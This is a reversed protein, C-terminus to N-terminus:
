EDPAIRVVRRPSAAARVPVDHAQVPVTDVLEEDYVVAVTLTDPGVRRLARDYAGGGRGLRNGAQDVALAPVIVLNAAAIADVGLHPGNPERLRRPTAMLSGAGAYEGWDLDGDDRLVPLLVRVGGREALADLFPVTGPENGVGVYATLVTATELEPLALLVGRIREAAASRQGSSRAERAARLRARLEAKSNGPVASVV